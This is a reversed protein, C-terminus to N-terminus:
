QLVHETPRAIGCVQYERFETTQLELTANRNGGTEIKKVLNCMRDCLRIQTCTDYSRQVCTMERPGILKFINNCIRAVTERVAPKFGLGGKLARIAHSSDCVIEIASTNPHKEFLFRLGFYIGMLEIVVPLNRGVREPKLLVVENVTDSEIISTFVCMSTKPSFGADSFLTVRM